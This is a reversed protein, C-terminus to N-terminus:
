NPIIRIRQGVRIMDSKLRNWSKLQRVSVKYRRAIHGLTDGSKVYYIIEANAKKIALHLQRTHNQEEALRVQDISDLVTQESEVLAALGTTDPLYLTTQPMIWESAFIITPNLMRFTRHTIKLSDIVASIRIATTANYETATTRNFISDLTPTITYTFADPESLTKGAAISDTSLTAGYIFANIARLTDNRHFAILDALYGAAADAAKTPDYREDVFRNIKLGYKIAIHPNLAWIGCRNNECFFPEGGSVSLAALATHESIGRGAFAQSWPYEAQAPICAASLSLLITLLIKNM